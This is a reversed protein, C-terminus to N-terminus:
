RPQPVIFLSAFPDDPARNEANMLHLNLRHAANLLSTKSSADSYCVAALKFIMRLMHHGPSNSGCLNKWTHYFDIGVSIEMLHPSFIMDDKKPCSEM